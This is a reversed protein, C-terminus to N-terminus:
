KLYKNAEHQSNHVSVFLNVSNGQIVSSRVLSDEIFCDCSIEVGIAYAFM